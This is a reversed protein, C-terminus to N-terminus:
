VLNGQFFQLPLFKCSELKPLLDMGCTPHVKNLLLKTKDSLLKLYILQLLFVNSQDYVKM